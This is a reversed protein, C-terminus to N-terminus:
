FNEPSFFLHMVKRGLLYNLDHKRSLHPNSQVGLTSLGTRAALAEEFLLIAAAADGVDVTKRLALRAHCKAVKTRSIIKFIWGNFLKKYKETERLYRFM